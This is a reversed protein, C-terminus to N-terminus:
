NIQLPVKSNIIGDERHIIFITNMRLFTQLAKKSKDPFPTPGIVIQHLAEKYMHNGIPNMEWYPILSFSGSRFKVKNKTGRVILRWEKEDEFAKDKIIAPIIRIADEYQLESIPPLIGTPKIRKDPSISCHNVLESIIKRQDEEDYICPLLYAQNGILQKLKTTDFGLSYGDGIQCYGRWQGLHDSKETFSSVGLYVGGTDNNQLNALYSKMFELENPKRTSSGHKLQNDIENNLLDFALRLELSDNLYDMKTVWLSNDQIIGLLGKSSTYHYLYEPTTIKLKEDIISKHEM